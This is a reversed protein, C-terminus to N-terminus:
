LERVSWLFQALGEAELVLGMVEHPDCEDISPIIDEMLMRYVESEHEPDTRDLENLLNACTETITLHLEEPTM